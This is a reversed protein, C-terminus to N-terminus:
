NRVGTFHVKSDTFHQIGRLRLPSVGLVRGEERGEALRHVDAGAIEDNVEVIHSSVLENWCENRVM